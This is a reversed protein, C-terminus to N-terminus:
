RHQQIPHPRSAGPVSRWQLIAGFAVLSGLVILQSSTQNPIISLWQPKAATLGATGLGVLLSLGLCSYLLVTGIRPWLISAALGGLLAMGCAVPLTRRIQPSLSEWTQTAYTQPTTQVTVAPWQWPKAPDASAPTFTFTALAAWSALVLGLGIGVWVKHLAFGTIGLLLAGLIATSWGELAWGFWQPMHLGVLAGTSVSTLTVLTRSFRSGGLWLVGGVFAGAFALLITLSGINKPLIALLQQIM